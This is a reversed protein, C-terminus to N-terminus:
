ESQKSGFFDDQTQQFLFAEFQRLLQVADAVDQKAEGESIELNYSYSGTQRHAFLRDLIKSTSLPFTGNKVFLRNFEGIVRGHSSADVESFELLAKMGHFVSYYAHVSAFRFKGSELCQRAMEESDRALSIMQRLLVLRSESM